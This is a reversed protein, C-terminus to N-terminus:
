EHTNPKQKFVEITKEAHNIINQTSTVFIDEQALKLEDVLVRILLVLHQNVNARNAKIVHIDSLSFSSKLVTGIFKIKSEGDFLIEWFDGKMDSVLITKDKKKVFVGVRHPNDLSAHFNEVIDGFKLNYMLWEVDDPKVEERSNPSPTM